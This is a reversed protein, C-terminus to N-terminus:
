HQKIFLATAKKLIENDRKVKCLEKRLNQIEQAACSHENINTSRVPGRGLYERKWRTVASSSAGTIEVIQHKSYGEDIMLKGYEIKQERTVQVRRKYKRTSM